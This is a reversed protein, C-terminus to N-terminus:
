SDRRSATVPVLIGHDVLHRVAPALEAALQTVDLDHARAVVTVLDNLAVAGDCQGVLTAILPDV